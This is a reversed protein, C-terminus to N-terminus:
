SHLKFNQRPLIGGALLLDRRSDSSTYDPPYKINRQFWSGEVEPCFYGSISGDHEKPVALSYPTVDWLIIINRTIAMLVETIRLDSLLWTTNLL